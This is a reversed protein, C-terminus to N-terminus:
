KRSFLAISDRPTLGIKMTLIDLKKKNDRQECGSSLACYCSGAAEESCAGPGQCPGQM